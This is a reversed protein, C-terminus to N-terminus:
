DMLFRPGISREYKTRTAADEQKAARLVIEDDDWFVRLGALDDLARMIRIARDHVAVDGLAYIAVM